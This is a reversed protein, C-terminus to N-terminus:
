RRRKLEWNFGKSTSNYAYAEWGRDGLEDLKAYAQKAQDEACPTDNACFYFSYEWSPGRDERRVPNTRDQAHATGVFSAMLLGGLAM